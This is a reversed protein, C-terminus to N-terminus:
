LLGGDICGGVRDEFDACYAACWAVGDGLGAACIADAHAWIPEEDEPITWFDQWVLWDDSLTGYPLSAPPPRDARFADHDDDLDEANRAALFGFLSAGSMM